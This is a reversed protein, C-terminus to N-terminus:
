PCQLLAPRSPIRQTIIFIGRLFSVQCCIKQLPARQDTTNTSPYPIHALFYSVHLGQPGFFFAKIFEDKRVKGRRYGKSNLAKQGMGAGKRAQQELQMYNDYSVM